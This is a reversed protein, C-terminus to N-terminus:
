RGAAGRDRAEAARDREEATPRGVPTIQDGFGAGARGSDRDSAVPTLRAREDAGADAGAAFGGEAAHWDDSASRSDRDTATEGSSSTQERDTVTEDRESRM